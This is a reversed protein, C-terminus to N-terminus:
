AIGAHLGVHGIQFVEFLLGLEYQTPMALPIIGDGYLDPRKYRTEQIHGVRLDKRRAELEAIRLLHHCSLVTEVTPLGQFSAKGACRAIHFRWWGFGRNHTYLRLQDDGIDLPRAFEE